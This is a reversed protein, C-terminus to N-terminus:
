NWSSHPSTRRPSCGATECPRNQGYRSRPKGRLNARGDIGVPLERVEWAPHLRERVAGNQFNKVFTQKDDPPNCHPAGQFNEEVFPHREVATAVSKSLQRLYRNNHLRLSTKIAGIYENRPGKSRQALTRRQAERRANTESTGHEAPSRSSSHASRNM